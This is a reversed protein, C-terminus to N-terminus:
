VEMLWKIISKELFIQLHVNVTQKNWQLNYIHVIFSERNIICKWKNRIWMICVILVLYYLVPTSLFTIKCKHLMYVVVVVDFKWEKFYKLPTNEGFFEFTSRHHKNPARCQLFPLCFVFINKSLINRTAIHWIWKELSSMFFSPYYFACSYLLSPCDNLATFILDNEENISRNATCSVEIRFIQVVGVM